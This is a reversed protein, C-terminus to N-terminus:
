GPLPPLCGLTTYGDRIVKVSAALQARQAPTMAALRAPDASSALLVTYLPCLVKIRTAAQQQATIYNQALSERVRRNTDAQGSLVTALAITLAVDLLLGIATIVTRRRTTRLRQALTDVSAQLSAATATLAEIRDDTSM